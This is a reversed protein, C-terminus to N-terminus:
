AVPIRGIHAFGNGEHTHHVEAIPKYCCSNEKAIKEVAPQTIANMAQGQLPLM